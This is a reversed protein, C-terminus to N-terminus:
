KQDYFRWQSQFDRTLNQKTLDARIMEIPITNERLIADHFERATMKGSAVLEKSLARIQLGGLMYAAQYLPGYDGAVSRRVEATANRREHGVRDVLFDIAEQATMKGLHFNLSFIIRACRHTRWFLAGVRDEPSKQFGLDWLLMEWYLAWGEVLFPTRFVRRQTNYRESMFIQLHHGPIVEHLVTARSFHINNGRLSMAKDEQSMTDTPFSVSIVEGGTFYPTVKQREPTMMEIRWVEKCLEPVTVLNRDEVFKTAELVLERILEPQDGPKRYQKNVHDLAKRWDDGFGLDRAVKKWEAECWAFEKNAIDILEEPTYPIMESALADLLADRGIPDGTVPEDEGDNVGVIKKKLFQGYEYLDKDAKEFPQKLWWSFEPDYGARFGNWNRLTRRLEEELRAARRALVRNQTNTASEKSDKLEKELEERIKKVADSVKVLTQAAAPPDAWVMRRRTEELGMIDDAFPLFRAVEANKKREHELEQTEFKLKARLLLFDIKDAQTLSDFNVTDLRRTTDLYFRQMRERQHTSLEGVESRGLADEDTHYREIIGRMLSLSADNADVKASSAVDAAALSLPLLTVCVLALLTKM